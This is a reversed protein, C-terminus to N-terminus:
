LCANPLASRVEQLSEIIKEMFILQCQYAAYPFKVEIGRINYTHSTM